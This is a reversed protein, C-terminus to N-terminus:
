GGPLVWLALWLVGMGVVVTLPISRTRYAALAGAVGAILQATELRGWPAGVDVFVPLVLAALVAPPVFDLARQVLPPLALREGAFFFSARFLYAVLAMGLVLIWYASPSV